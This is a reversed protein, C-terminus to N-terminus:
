DFFSLNFPFPNAAYERRYQTDFALIARFNERLDDTRQLTNFHNKWRQLAIPTSNDKIFDLYNAWAEMWDTPDMTNEDPFHSVKLVSHKTGNVTIQERPISTLHIERMAKASFLTLPLYLRFGMLTRIDPHAQFKHAGGSLDMPVEFEESFLIKKGSASLPLKEPILPAQKATIAGSVRARDDPSLQSYASLMDTVVQMDDNILIPSALREVPEDVHDDPIAPESPENDQEVGLGPQPIDEIIGDGEANGGGLDEPIPNGTVGAPPASM